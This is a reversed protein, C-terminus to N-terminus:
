ASRICAAPNACAAPCRFTWRRPRSSPRRARRRSSAQRREGLAAEIAQKAANIAAGRAKKDEVSLAGPGEDAGHHPRIQRTFQAKANELEAPTAAGAFAQRPM